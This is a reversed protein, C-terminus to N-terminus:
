RRLGAAAKLHELMRRRHAIARESLGGRELQVAVPPADEFPLRLPRGPPVQALQRARRRERESRYCEFCLSHDRDAKVRGAYQFRAKRERCSQCARRVRKSLHSAAASM